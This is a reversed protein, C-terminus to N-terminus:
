SKQSNKYSLKQNKEIKQFNIANFNIPIFDGFNRLFDPFIRFHYWFPLFLKLLKELNKFM